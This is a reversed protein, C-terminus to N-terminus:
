TPSSRYSVTRISTIPARHNQSFHVAIRQSGIETHPNANIIVTGAQTVSLRLMDSPFVGLFSRVDKLTCLIETTNMIKYIKLDTRDKRSTDVRGSNDYELYFICTIHEALPKSFKLQVRIYGNDPNSTHGESAARDPTLDFLLMIYGNIYMDHTIQLGSNSHQIGSVEFLTRYEMFSTKDQDMGLYLGEAPDLRGNVNLAFSSLDYHRFHYPNTKVSGLFETNKVMTFLLRNPVTGLVANDLSLSQVGCSFKISKLEVRTLNCPALAGKGLAINHASPLSPSPRVRNVLLQADLYKFVTKTEADKNMLHFFPKAKKLKIQM